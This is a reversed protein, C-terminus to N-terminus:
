RSEDRVFQEQCHSLCTAVQRTPLCSPTTAVLAESSWRWVNPLVSRRLCIMDETSPGPWQQHGVQRQKSITTSLPSLVVWTRPAQTPLHVVLQLSVPTTATTHPRRRM